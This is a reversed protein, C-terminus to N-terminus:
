FLRGLRYGSVIMVFTVVVAAFALVAAAGLLPEKYRYL